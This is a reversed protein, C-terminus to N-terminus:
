ELVESGDGFGNEDIVQSILSRINDWGEVSKEGERQAKAVHPWFNVIVDYPGEGRIGCQWHWPAKQPNPQYFRIWDYRRALYVFADCNGRQTQDKWYLNDM